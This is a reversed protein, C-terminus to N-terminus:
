LHSSQSNTCVENEIALDKVDSGGWEHLAMVHLVFVFGRTAWVDFQAISQTGWEHLRMAHTPM